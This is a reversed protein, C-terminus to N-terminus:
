IFLTLVSLECLKSLSASSSVSIDWIHVRSDASPRNEQGRFEEAMYIHLSESGTTGHWESLKTRLFYSSQSPLSLCMPGYVKIWLRSNVLWQQINQLSLLKWCLFCVDLGHSQSFKITSLLFTDWPVHSLIVGVASQFTADRPWSHQRTEPPRFIGCSHHIWQQM